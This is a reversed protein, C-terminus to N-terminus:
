GLVKSFCLSRHLFYLSVPLQSATKFSRESKSCTAWLGSHFGCCLCLPLVHSLLSKLPWVGASDGVFLLQSPPVYKWFRSMSRSKLLITDTLWTRGTGWRKYVLDEGKVFCLWSFASSVFIVISCHNIRQCYADPALFCEPLIQEWWWAILLRSSILVILVSGISSANEELPFFGLNDLKTSGVNLLVCQNIIRPLVCFASVLLTILCFPFAHFFICALYVLLSFLVYM